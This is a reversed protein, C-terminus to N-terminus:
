TSLWAADQTKSEEYYGLAIRGISVRGLHERDLQNASQESVLLRVLSQSWANNLNISGWPDNATPDFAGFMTAGPPLGNLTAM